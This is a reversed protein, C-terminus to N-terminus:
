LIRWGESHVMTKWSEGTTVVFITFFVRLRVGRGVSFIEYFGGSRKRRDLRM